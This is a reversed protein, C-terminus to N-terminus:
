EGAARQARVAALRARLEANILTQYGKGSGESLSRFQEIVEDDLYITIRTKRKRQAAGHVVANNMDGSAHADLAGPNAEFDM